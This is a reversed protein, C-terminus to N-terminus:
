REYDSKVNVNILHFKDTFKLSKSPSVGSWSAMELFRSSMNLKSRSWWASTISVFLLPKLEIWWAARRPFGLDALRIKTFKGDLRAYM